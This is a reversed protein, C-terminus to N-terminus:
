ARFASIASCYGFPNSGGLVEGGGPKGLKTTYRRQACSSLIRSSLSTLKVYTKQDRVFSCRNFRNKLKNIVCRM